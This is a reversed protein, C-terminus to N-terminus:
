FWLGGGDDDSDQQPPPPQYQHSHHRGRGGKSSSPQNDDEDRIEGEEESESVQLDDRIDEEKNAGYSLFEAEPDYNADVEMASVEELEELEEDTSDDGIDKESASYQLDDLIDSKRKSGRPSSFSSRPSAGRGSPSRCHLLDRSFFQNLYSYLPM